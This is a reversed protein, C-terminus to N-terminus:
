SQVERLMPIAKMLADVLDLMDDPELGEWKELTVYPAPGGDDWTLSGDRFEVHKSLRVMGMSREFWIDAVGDDYITDVGFTEAWEPKSAAVEPHDSIWADKAVAWRRRQEESTIFEVVQEGDVEIPEQPIVMGLSIILLEGVRIASNPTSRWYRLVAAPVKIIQQRWIRDAPLNVKRGVGDLPLARHVPELNEFTGGLQAVTQSWVPEIEQWLADDPSIDICRVDGSDILALANAVDTASHRSTTTNQSMNPNEEPIPISVYQGEAAAGVASPANKQTM